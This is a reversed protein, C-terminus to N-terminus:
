TLKSHTLDSMAEGRKQQPPISRPYFPDSPNVGINLFHNAFIRKM